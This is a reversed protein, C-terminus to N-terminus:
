QTSKQNNLGEVFGRKANAQRARHRAVQDLARCHLDAMIATLM